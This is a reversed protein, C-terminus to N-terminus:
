PNTKLVRELFARIRDPPIAFAVGELNAKLVVMGFVNGMEDFVPGGSNGPNVQASTQVFTSGDIERAPSSVIGATVTKELIARGAGPNGIVVVNSGAPPTRNLSLAVTPLDADKTLRLLALDQARDMAVIEAPIEARGEPAGASAIIVRVTAASKPLNHACTLIWGRRGVAFGSGISSETAVVVVAASYASAIDQPRQAQTNWKGIANLDERLVRIPRREFEDAKPTVGTRAIQQARSRLQALDPIPAPPLPQVTGLRINKMPLLFLVSKLSEAHNLVKCQTADAMLALWDGNASISLRARDGSEVPLPIPAGLARGTAPDKFRLVLWQQNTPAGIQRTGTKTVISLERLTASGRLNAAAAAPEWAPLSTLDEPSAPRSASTTGTQGQAAEVPRDDPPNWALKMTPSQPSWRFNGRRRSDLVQFVVASVRGSNRAPLRHFALHAIAPDADEEPDESPWGFAYARFAM